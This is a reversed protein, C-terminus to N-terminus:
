TREWDRRLWREEKQRVAIGSRLEQDRGFKGFMDVLKQFRSNLM